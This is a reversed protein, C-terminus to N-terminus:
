LHLLYSHTRTCVADTVGQQAAAVMLRQEGTPSGSVDQWLQPRMWQELVLWRRNSVVRRPIRALAHVAKVAHM